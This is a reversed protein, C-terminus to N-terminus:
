SADTVSDSYYIDLTMQNLNQNIM